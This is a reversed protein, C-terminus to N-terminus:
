AGLAGNRQAGPHGRQGGDEGHPLAHHRAMGQLAAELCQAPVAVGQLRTEHRGAATVRPWAGRDAGHAADDVAEFEGTAALRPPQAPSQGLGAPAGLVGQDDVQKELQAQGQDRAPQRRQGKIGELEPIQGRQRGKGHSQRRHQGPGVRRLQEDGVDDGRAALADLLPQGVGEVEHDDAGLRPQGQIGGQLANRGLHPAGGRFQGVLEAEGGDLETEQRLPGM